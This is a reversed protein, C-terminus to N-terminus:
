LKRATSGSPLEIVPLSQQPGCSLSFQGQWKNNSLNVEGGAQAENLNVTIAQTGDPVRNSSNTFSRSQKGPLPSLGWREGNMATGGMGNVILQVSNGDPMPKPVDYPVGGANRVTATVAVHLPITCNDAAFQPVGQLNKGLPTGSPKGSKTVLRVSTQPTPQAFAIADFAHNLTPLAVKVGVVELDVPSAMPMSGPTPLTATSPDMPSPLKPTIAGLADPNVNTILPKCSLVFTYTPTPAGQVKLGGFEVEVVHTAENPLVVNFQFPLIGKTTSTFNLQGISGIRATLTFQSGAMSTSNVTGGLTGSLPQACSAVATGQPLVTGPAHQTTQVFNITKSQGVQVKSFLAQPAGGIKLWISELTVQAMAPTTCLLCAATAAALRFLLHIPPRM